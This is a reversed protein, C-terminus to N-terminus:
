RWRLGSLLLQVQTPAAQKAVTNSSCLGPVCRVGILRTQKGYRPVAALYQGRTVVCPFLKELWYVLARKRSESTCAEPSDTDHTLMKNSTIKRQQHQQKTFLQTM